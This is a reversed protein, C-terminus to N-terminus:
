CVVLQLMWLGAAELVEEVDEDEEKEDCCELTDGVVVHSWHTELEVVVSDRLWFVEEVEVSDIIEEGGLLDNELKELDGMRETSIPAWNEKLDVFWMELLGLGLMADFSFGLGPKALGFEVVWITCGAFVFPPELGYKGESVLAGEM